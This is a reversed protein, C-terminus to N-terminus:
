FKLIVGFTWDSPKFQVNVEYSDDADSPYESFKYHTYQISAFRLYLIFRDGLFYNIDPSIGTLFIDTSEITKYQALQTNRKYERTKKGYGVKLHTSLYFNSKIPFYYNVFLYPYTKEEEIEKLFYSQGSGLPLIVELVDERLRYISYHIGLGATLRNGIGYGVGAETEFNLIKANKAQELGDFYTDHHKYNFHFNGETFFRHKLEQANMTFASLVLALFVAVKIVVCQIDNM